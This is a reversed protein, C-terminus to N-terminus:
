HGPPEYDPETGASEWPSGVPLISAGASPAPGNEGLPIPEEEEATRPLFDEGQTEPEPEGGQGQAPLLRDAPACMM